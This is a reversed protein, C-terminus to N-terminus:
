HRRRKYLLLVAAVTIIAASFGLFVAISPNQPPKEPLAINFTITQSAGINGFTDTAYIKISHPGNTLNTLTCNGTVTQNQTDLQLITSNVPKNVMFSLTVNNTSYNMANPSIVSIQPSVTGYGFPTYQQNIALQLYSADQGGVVYIVDNLVSVDYHGQNTVEKITYDMTTQTPPLNAGAEWVTTQPDYAAVITGDFIYIRSPADVGCAAVAIPQTLKIPIQTGRTWNGYTPDYIQIFPSALVYLKDGFSCSCYSGNPRTPMSEFARWNNVAPDYVYNTRDSILYIKGDIVNAQIRSVIEPLSAKTEWTDNAPNYVDTVTVMSNIGTGGICYIKGDIVATAFNSRAIPMDAKFTWANTKPDYEENRDTFEAATFTPLTTHATLDIQPPKTIGGLAYMKGNASAVGLDGRAIHMQAKAIWVNENPANLAKAGLFSVSAMSILLTGIIAYLIAKKMYQVM